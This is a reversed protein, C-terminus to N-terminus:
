RSETNVPETSRARDIAEYELADLADYFAQKTGNPILWESHGGIAREDRLKIAAGVVTELARIATLLATRSAEYESEHECMPGACTCHEWGCLADTVDDVLREIESMRPSPTDAVTHFHVSASPTIETDAM